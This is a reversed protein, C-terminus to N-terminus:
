VRYRGHNMREELDLYLAKYGNIFDDAAYLNKVREYGNEGYQRRKQFNECLEVIGNAIGVYDMVAALTGAPGFEDYGGTVFTECDGVNTSVFPISCAMGELIALPQGESISTLILVDMKGLYERLNVYGTFIVNDLELFDKYAMCEEFYEPDEDTPGMIYFKINSIKKNAYSFAQLMTKIDKIPVVRVIAGVNIEQSDSRENVRQRINEYNEINVGNHIVKIKNSDCGLETQIDKNKSFLTVVQNACQYAASSLCNFYDIWFYKYHGKVWEAKIIEEERERTYIGHETLMFGAKHTYAANAAIVGAYGTSVSHYVDAKPYKRLMLSFLPVYMSRMTWFMEAFPVHDYQAEYVEQVLQFFLRSSFIEAATIKQKELKSFCEFVKDWDTVKSKLLQMFAPASEEPIPVIKNWAGKLELLQDMYVDVVEILNEPLKYKIEMKSTSDPNIAIIMFQHEPMSNILQQVWSSVGGSVYPYSGEAVLCIKM